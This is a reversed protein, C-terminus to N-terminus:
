LLKVTWELAVTCKCVNFRIVVSLVLLAEVDVDAWVVQLVLTVFTRVM